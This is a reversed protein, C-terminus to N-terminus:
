NEQSQISYAQDQEAEWHSSQDVHTDKLVGKICREM